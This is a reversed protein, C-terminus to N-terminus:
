VHELLARWSEIDTDSSPLLQFGVLWGEGAENPRCWKVQAAMYFPEDVSPLEACVSLFAGVTVEQKICVRFGGYSVDLVECQLLLGESFDTPAIVEVFVRTNMNLRVYDRNNDVVHVRASEFSSNSSIVVQLHNVVFEHSSEMTRNTNTRDLEVGNRPSCGGM